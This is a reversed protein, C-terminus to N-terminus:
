SQSKQLKYSMIKDQKSVKRGKLIQLMITLLTTGVIYLCEKIKETYSHQFKYIILSKFNGGVAGM